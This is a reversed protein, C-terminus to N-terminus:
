RTFSRDHDVHVPRGRIKSSRMTSIVQDAVDSAVEVFSHRDGIAIAGIQKSEIGAENAIAGVLDQPRIGAKKGISFFLRAMAAGSRRAPAEPVRRAPAADGGVQLRSPRDGFFSAPRSDPKFRRPRADLVDRAQSPELTSPGRRSPPARGPGGAAQAPAEARPASARPASARPASTRPASARPASTRPASARPSAARPTRGADEGPISRPASREPRQRAPTGEVGRAPRDKQFPKKTGKGPGHAPIEVDDDESPPHLAESLAVLAAAAVDELPREGALRSVVGRASELGAGSELRAAVAAELQRVRHERLTEMSPVPKLELRGQTAQELRSVLFREKPLVFSIAVGERGARGTRGIRHVYTDVTHPLDVNVVHSVHDVDLGRAAVDTAVLLSVQKQKFRKMVRDRQEQSLGGHLSAVSHGNRELTQGLGEVDERTRCFIIASEPQVLELVRKLAVAKHPFAVVYGQQTIRPKSAAGSGRELRVRVPDKLHHEGLSAIRPPLTASFLATQRAAPLESLIAELDEAFGLDLMEDAEDLVVMKVASLDLTKRRIHDLARGPTAVVVDVGRRLQKMQAVIDSGGYVTLVSLKRQSGYKKVAESVQLALERTPALVLGQVQGPKRSALPTLREVMPLAFAATKGTGTAALGLVDRGELLAPITAAQVPTPTAYGLATVVDCLADSLGLEKFSAPATM